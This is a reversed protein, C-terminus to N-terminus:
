QPENSHLKVAKGANMKLNLMEVGISFAMAFYTFGKEIHQHFGEALLNVGILVLFALALMKVTPHKEIFASVKGAFALMFAVSGIVSIVMISLHKVMGVATIVSDLSFVLDIVVIQAIVAAFASKVPGDGGHEKGELKNHIEHVAKYILFLGGVILIIDKWSLTIWSGIPLIGAKLSMIWTICFLLGLRMVLALGLGLTRAKPREAEPLKGTLISLFVINDIGLVVELLLLAVLGAWANGDNIWSFDM